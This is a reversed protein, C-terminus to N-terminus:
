AAAPRRRAREPRREASPYRSSVGLRGDVPQVARSRKKCHSALSTPQSSAMTSSGNVDLQHGTIGRRLLAVGADRRVKPRATRTPLIEVPQQDGDAGGGLLVTVTKPTCPSRNDRRCTIAEPPVNGTLM